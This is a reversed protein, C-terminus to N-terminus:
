FPKNVDSISDCLYSRFLKANKSATSLKSIGKDDNGKEDNGEINNESTTDEM